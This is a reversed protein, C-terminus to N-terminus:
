KRVPRVKISRFEIRHDKQCQFGIVGAAHKSDHADLLPKGNLLVVFHDGRATIEYSNWRDGLIKAAPAKVTGVLSGTNYGAPQYDWIQLEYGTIHPQGEKKSRLFVGSNVKESGRFELKLVYDSFERATGIWGASTGPCSIAGNEAKFDGGVHPEWGNLSKGDFLLIWGESAEKASLANPQDEARAMGALTGLGIVAVALRM